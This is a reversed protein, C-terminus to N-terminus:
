ASGFRGDSGVAWLWPLNRWVPLGWNKWTAVTVTGWMSFRTDSSGVKCYRLVKAASISSDNRFNAREDDVLVMHELRCRPIEADSCWCQPEVLEQRLKLSSWICSLNSFTRCSCYSRLHDCYGKFHLGRSQLCLLAVSRPKARSLQSVSSFQRDGSTAWSPLWSRTVASNLSGACHSPRWM